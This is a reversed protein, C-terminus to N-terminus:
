KSGEKNICFDVWVSRLERIVQRSLYIVKGNQFTLSENHIASIHYLNIVMSSSCMFFRSDRLMEQIAESFKTRISTSEIVKGNTLHYHIIKQNLEAYLITDFTLRISSQATKVVMGKERKETLVAFAEDLSSFLAEKNVPKLLYEWVKAKIARFAFDPSSTLYFIKSDPDLKRLDMGLEIGDLLPMLIDLIYIDFGGTHRADELLDTGNEYVSLDISRVSQQMYERVLRTVEERCVSDDDCIAIRM